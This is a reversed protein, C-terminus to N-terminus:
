VRWGVGSQSFRFGEREEWAKKVTGRKEGRGVLRSCVEGSQNGGM